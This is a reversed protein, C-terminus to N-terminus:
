NVLSALMVVPSTSLVSELPPSIQLDGPGCREKLSGVIGLSLFAPNLIIYSSYKSPCHSIRDGMYQNM